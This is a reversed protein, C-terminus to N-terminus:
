SLLDNLQFRKLRGSISVRQQRITHTHTQSQTHPAAPHLTPTPDFLIVLPFIILIQEFSPLPYKQSM